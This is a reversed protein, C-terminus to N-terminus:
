GGGEAKAENFLAEWEERAKLEKAAEADPEASYIWFPKVGAGACSFVRPVEVLGDPHRVICRGDTFVVRRGSKSKAAHRRGEAPAATRGEDAANVAKAASAEPLIAYLQADAEGHTGSATKTEAILEDDHAKGSHWSSQAWILALIGIVLLSVVAIKARTPIVPGRVEEKEVAMMASIASKRKAKETQLRIMDPSASEEEERRLKLLGFLYHRTEVDHKFRLIYELDEVDLISEIEKLCKEYRVQDVKDGFHAGYFGLGIFLKAGVPAMAFYGDLDPDRRCAAIAARLDAEPIMPEEGAVDDEKAM